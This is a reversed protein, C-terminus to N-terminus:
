KKSTALGEIAKALANYDDAPNLKYDADAHAITGDKKV